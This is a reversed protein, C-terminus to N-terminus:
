STTADEDSSENFIEMCSITNYKRILKWAKYDILDESILKQRSRFLKDVFDGLDSEFLKYAKETIDNSIHKEFWKRYNRTVSLIRGSLTNDTFLYIIDITLREESDAVSKEHAQRHIDRLENFTLINGFLECTAYNHIDFCDFTLTVDCQNNKQVSINFNNAM